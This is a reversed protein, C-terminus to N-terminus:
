NNMIWTQIRFDRTASAVNAAQDKVFSTIDESSVKENHRAIYSRMSNTIVEENIRADGTMNMGYLTASEFAKQLLKEKSM